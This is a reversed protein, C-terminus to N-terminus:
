VNNVLRSICQILYPNLSLCLREVLLIMHSLLHFFDEEAKGSGERPNTRGTAEEAAELSKTM